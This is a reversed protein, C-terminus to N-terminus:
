RDLGFAFVAGDNWRLQLSVPSGPAAAPAKSWRVPHDLSDGRIPICDSFTFGPIALGQADILQARLEGNVKANLTIRRDNLIFPVTTLTGGDSDADRAVYRDRPLTVMGIQRETERKVKHGNKYGGYYFRVVDDVLVQEDIWAHAHDWTGPRPDPEFFLQPDRTWHRGDRSWALATSGMGYSGEPTESARLDDRLIKAMGILLDGRAIYGDMAYFQTDGEDVQM